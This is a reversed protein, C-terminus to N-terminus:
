GDGRRRRASRSPRGNRRRHPRRAGPDLRRPRPGRLTARRRAPKARNLEDWGIWNIDAGRRLLLDAVQRQGGHCASWFAETIEEPTPPNEANLYGHVRDIVGLTAAEGLTTSAGRELLRRAAVWQRFATADSIPTGGGIVAGRAEIDAGADLLANLASVDDSSAASHLPTENHPGTFRADVDAGAAVLAEVTATINPFHGALRHRRAFRQPDHRRRRVSSTV